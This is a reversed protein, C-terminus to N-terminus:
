FFTKKKKKQCTKKKKEYHVLHNRIYEENAKNCNCTYMSIQGKRKIIKPNLYVIYCYRDTVGKTKNRM